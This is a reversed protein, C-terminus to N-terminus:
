LACNYVERHLVLIIFSVNPLLFMTSINFTGLLSLIFSRLVANDLALILCYLHFM